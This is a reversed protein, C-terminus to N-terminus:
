YVVIRIFKIFYFKSLHIDRSVFGVVQGELKVVELM